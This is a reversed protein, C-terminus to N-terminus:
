CGDLDVLYQCVMVRTRTEDDFLDGNVHGWGAVMGDAPTQKLLDEFSRRQRQAAVMLAGYEMFSGPDVLDEINERTTRHNTKRRRAVADPRMKDLTIDHRYKVEALDPRIHDLDVVAKVEEEGAGTAGGAPEIFAFPFAKPLTQGVAATLARVTGPVTASIVHEMKMANLVGLQQGKKVVEGVKVDVTVITAQMPVVVPVTGPPTPVAPMQLASDSGGVAAPVATGLDASSFFLPKAANRALGGSKEGTPEKWGISECLFDMKEEIWKTHLALGKPDAHGFADVEPMNLIAKLFPANTEVGEIRTEELARKCRNFVAALSGNPASVIIKALLPDFNPNTAYGTYGSTDVRIGRGSPPEFALLNGGSTPVWVANDPALYEAKEMNVRLQVAWGKPKVTGNAFEAFGLEALSIYPDLGIRIQAAVLDVDFVEETVTHEVQVRANVEMFWFKDGKVLFEWTGLGYFGSAKAMRITAQELEAAVRPDLLPAPAIEIIKQHRRQLTCDRTSLTVASDFTALLQVEIHRPNAVLAECYVEDRGFSARAESQCRAVADPLADMSTVARMGRGGGGYVAKVMVGEYVKDAANLSKMFSVAEDATKIAGNTGPVVPVGCKM